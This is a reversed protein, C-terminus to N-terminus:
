FSEVQRLLDATVGTSLQAAALLAQPL